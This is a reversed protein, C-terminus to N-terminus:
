TEGEKQNDASLKDPHYLKVHGLLKAMREAESKSISRARAELSSSSLAGGILSVVVVITSVLAFACIMYALLGYKEFFRDIYKYQDDDITVDVKRDDHM